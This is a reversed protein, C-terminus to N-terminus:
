RNTIASGSHCQASGITKSMLLCGAEPSSINTLQTPGSEKHLHFSTLTQYSWALALPWLPM